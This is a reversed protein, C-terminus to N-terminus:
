EDEREEVGRIPALPENEFDEADIEPRYKRFLQMIMYSSLYAYVGSAVALIPPFFMEAVLYLGILICLCSITTLLHRNAMFFASRITQFFKMEFRSVLPFVYVAVIILEILIIIQLPFLINALTPNFGDNRLWFINTIVLAALAVWFLWLLTAQKFNSKFSSFFDKFLYGEKNSIRRTTVYFLATTSAGITILPLSFVFWLLSLLMIDAIANGFRFFPGDMNFIGNM